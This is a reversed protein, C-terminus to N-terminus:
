SKERWFDASYNNLGGSYPDPKASFSPPIASADGGNRFFDRVSCLALSRLHDWERYLKDQRPQELKPSSKRKSLPPVYDPYSHTNHSFTISGYTWSDEISRRWRYSVRVTLIESFRSPSIIQDDVYFLAGENQETEVRGKMMQVAHVLDSGARLLDLRTETRKKNAKAKGYEALAREFDWLKQAVYPGCSILRLEYVAGSREDDMCRDILKDLLDIDVARLADQEDRSMNIEVM